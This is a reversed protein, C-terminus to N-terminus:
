FDLLLVSVETGAPQAPAYPPRVLLGDASALPALLSSDQSRAPRVEPVGDSRKRLSARM